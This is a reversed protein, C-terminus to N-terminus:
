RWFTELKKGIENAKGRFWEFKWLKPIGDTYEIWKGVIREFRGFKASWEWNKRLLFETGHKKRFYIWVWWRWIWQWKRDWGAWSTGFHFIENFRQKSYFWEDKNANAFVSLLFRWQNKFQLWFRFKTSTFANFRNTICKTTCYCYCLLILSRSTSFFEIFRKLKNFHFFWLLKLLFNTNIWHSMPIRQCYIRMSVDFARRVEFVCLIINKCNNDFRNYAM